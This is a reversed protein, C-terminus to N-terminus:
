TRGTCVVVVQVIPLPANSEIGPGYEGSTPDANRQTRANLGPLERDPITNQKTSVARYSGGCQQAAVNWCGTLEMCEIQFTPPGGPPTVSKVTSSCALSGPVVLAGLLMVLRPYFWGDSMVGFRLM